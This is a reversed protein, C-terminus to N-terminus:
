QSQIPEPMDKGCYRCVKAEAKIMEACFPCKRKESLAPLFLLVLFSPPFLFSGLAWKWMSRGKSSTLILSLIACFFSVAVGGFIMKRKREKEEYYEIVGALQASAVAYDTQTKPHMYPTLDEKGNTLLQAYSLRAKYLDKEARSINDSAGCSFIPILIFFLAIAM